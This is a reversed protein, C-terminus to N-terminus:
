ATDRMANLARRQADLDIRLTILEAAQESTFAHPDYQQEHELKGIERRLDNINQQLLAAMGAVLPAAVLTIKQDIGAAMAGSISSVLAPKVLFWAAIALPFLAAFTSMTSVIHRRREEKTFKM